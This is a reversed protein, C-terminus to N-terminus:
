IITLLDKIKLLGSIFWLLNRTRLLSWGLVVSSIVSYIDIINLDNRIDKFVESSRTYNKM